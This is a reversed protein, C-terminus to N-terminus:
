DPMTIHPTLRNSSIHIASYAPAGSKQFHDSSPTQHRLVLSQFLNKRKKLRTNNHPTLRNGLNHQLEIKKFTTPALPKSASLLAPVLNERKMLWTQYATDNQKRLIDM